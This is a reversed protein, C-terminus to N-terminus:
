SRIAHWGSPTWRFVTPPIPRDSLAGVVRSHASLPAVSNAGRADIFLLVRSSPAAVPVSGGMQAALDSWQEHLLLRSSEYDDGELVGIQLPQVRGRKMPPLAAALNRRGLAFAEERTLGLKALDDARVFRSTRPRDAVCVVWLDGVFPEVVPQAQPTGMTRRIEEVYQAPRLVLRVSPTDVPRAREEMAEGSSTVYTTLAADCNRPNDGCFRWVRDLNAWFDQPDNPLKIGLTLPEKVTVVADPFRARFRQAAEATFAAPDRPPSV